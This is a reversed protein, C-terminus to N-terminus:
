TALCFGSILTKYSPQDDPIGLADPFEGYLYNVVGKLYAFLNLLGARLNRNCGREDDVGLSEIAASLFYQHDEWYDDSLSLAEVESKGNPFCRITVIRPNSIKRM